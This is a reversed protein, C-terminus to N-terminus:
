RFRVVIVIRFIYEDDKVNHYSCLCTVEVDSSMLMELTTEHSRECYWEQHHTGSISVFAQVKEEKNRNSIFM